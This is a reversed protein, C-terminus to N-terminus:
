LRPFGVTVARVAVVAVTADLLGPDAEDLVVLVCHDPVDFNRASEAHDYLRLM